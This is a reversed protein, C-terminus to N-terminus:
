FQQYFCFKRKLTCKEKNKNRKNCKSQSSILANMKLCCDCNSEIIILLNKKIISSFHKANVSFMEVKIWTCILDTSNCVVRFVAIRPNRIRCYVENNHM